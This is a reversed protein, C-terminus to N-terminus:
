APCCTGWGPWSQVQLNLGIALVLYVGVLISGHFLEFRVGARRVAALVLCILLCGAWLSLLPFFLTGTLGAATCLCLVALTLFLAAPVAGRPLRFAPKQPAAPRLETIPM